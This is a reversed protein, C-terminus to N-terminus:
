SIWATGCHILHIRRLCDQGLLHQLAEMKLYDLPIIDEVRQGTDHLICTLVIIFRYDSSLVDYKDYLM